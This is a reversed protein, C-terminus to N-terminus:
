VDHPTRWRWHNPTAGAVPVIDREWDLEFEALADDLAQRIPDKANIADLSDNVALWQPSTPDTNIAMFFAPDSPAIQLSSFRERQGSSSGALWLAGVTVGIVGASLPILALLGM